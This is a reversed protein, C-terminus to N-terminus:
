NNGDRGHPVPTEVDTGPGAAAQPGPLPDTMALHLAGGNTLTLRDEGAATHRRVLLEAELQQIARVVDAHAFDGAHAFVTDMSLTNRPHHRFADMVLEPLIEETM